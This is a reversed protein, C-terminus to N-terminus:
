SAQSLYLQKTAQNLAQIASASFQSGILKNADVLANLIARREPLHPNAALHDYFYEVAALLQAGECIQSDSLQNPYGSGDIHEHHHACILAAPQWEQHKNLYQYAINPHNRLKQADEPSTPAQPSSVLGMGIDHMYVAATIQQPDIAADFYVLAAHTLQLLQQSRGSQGYLKLELKDASAQFFHLQEDRIQQESSPAAVVTTAEAATNIDGARLESLLQTILAEVDAAHDALSIALFRSGISEMEDTECEGQQRLEDMHHRLRDLALISTEKLTPSFALRGKRVESISEEIGHVYDTFPTLFCMRFNGKITHLNRFLDNLINESNPNAALEELAPEVEDLADQISAILEGLIEADLDDPLSFAM